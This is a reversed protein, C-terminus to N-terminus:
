DRKNWWGAKPPGQEAPGIVLCRGGSKYTVTGVPAAPPLQAAAILAAIKPMAQRADRSWGGTERINVFHIPRETVSAAGETQENLEVFLRQEQTCAVVLDDRHRTAKQFAPADRRCLTTHLTLDEDLARGLAKPDLPMTQNCNCILTTM